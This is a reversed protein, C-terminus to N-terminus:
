ERLFILNTLKLFVVFAKFVLGHHKLFFLRSLCAHKAAEAEKFLLVFVITGFLQLLICLLWLRAPGISLIVLFFVLILIFILIFFFVWLDDNILFFLVISEFSDLILQLSNALLRGITSTVREVHWISILEIITAARRLGARENILFIIVWTLWINLILEFRTLVVTKMFLGNVHLISIVIWILIRKNLARRACEIGQTGLWLFGSVRIHYRCLQSSIWLFFIEFKCYERQFHDM